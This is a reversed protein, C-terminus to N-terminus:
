KEGQWKIKKFWAQGRVIKLDEDKMAEDRTFLTGKDEGVKLWKKCNEEDGRLAYLCALNYAGSGIKLSEAKLLKEEAQKLLDKADKGGKLKALCMLAYSWSNYADFYDPDIKLAKQHKGIAQNCLEEADKGKKHEALERLVCGWGYYPDCFDRKIEIAEQYKEIAQRLLGEAETGKKLNALRLLSTGWNNYVYPNKYEKQEEVIQRNCDIATEYDKAETAMLGKNFLESVKRQREFEKSSEDQQKRSTKEIEEQGAKAEAKIADLTEKAKTNIEELKEKVEKDVRDFEDKAKREWEQAKDRAAKAEKGAERAEKVAEKADRAAEKAAEVAEKYDKNNKFVLYGMSAFALGVFTTVLGLIVKIAWKLNDVDKEKAAAKDTAIVEKTVSDAKAPDASVVKEATGSQEEAFLTSLSGIVLVIALVSIRKKM